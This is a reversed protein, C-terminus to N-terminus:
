GVRENVKRELAEVAKIVENIKQRFIEAVVWEDMMIYPGQRRKKLIEEKSIEKIM